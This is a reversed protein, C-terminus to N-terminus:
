EELNCVSLTTYTVFPLLLHRTTDDDKQENVEAEHNPTRHHTHLFALGSHHDQTPHQEGREDEDSGDTNGLGITTPRKPLILEVRHLLMNRHSAEGFLCVHHLLERLLLLLGATEGM